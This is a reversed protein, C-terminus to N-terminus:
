TGVIFSCTALIKVCPTSVYIWMDEYMEIVERRLDQHEGRDPQAPQHNGVGPASGLEVAAQHIARHQSPQEGHGGHEVGHSGEGGAAEPPVEEVPTVPGHDIEEDGAGVCGPKLESMKIADRYLQPLALESCLM